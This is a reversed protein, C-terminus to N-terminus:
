TLNETALERVVNKAIFGFGPGEELNHTSVVYGAREDLNEQDFVYKWYSIGM